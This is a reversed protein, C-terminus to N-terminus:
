TGAHRNAYVSITNTLPKMHKDWLLLQELTGALQLTIQPLLDGAYHGVASLASASYDAGFLRIDKITQGTNNYVIYEDQGRKAAIISNDLAYVAMNRIQLPQVFSFEMGGFGTHATGTYVLKRGSWIQLEGDKGFYLLLNACGGATYAFATQGNVSAMGDAGYHLTFAEAGDSGTLYFATGAQQSLITFAAIMSGSFPYAFKHQISGTEGTPTMTLYAVAPKVAQSIQWSIDAGDATWKAEDGIQAYYAFCDPNYITKLLFPPMDQFQNGHLSVNRSKEVKIAYYPMAFGSEVGDNAQTKGGFAGSITNDALEAGDANALYLPIYGSDEIVNNSIRLNKLNTNDSLGEIYANDSASIFISAYNRIDKTARSYGAKKIVNGTIEVNQPFGGEGFSHEPLIAIASKSMKEFVNDKVTLNSAKVLLGRVHSDHFYSNKITLGTGGAAYSSLVYDPPEVAPCPTDLQVRYLSVYSYANTVDIGTQQSLNALLTKLGEAEDEASLQACDAIVATGVSDWAPNYFHLTEGNRIPTDTNRMAIEFETDSIKKYVNLFVGYSNLCDDLTHGVVCGDLTSGHQVNSLHFGDAISSVLRDTAPRRDVTVNKYTHAGYGYSETIALKPSTYVTVNELTCRSSNSLNISSKANADFRRCVFRDGIQVGDGAFIDGSALRLRLTRDGIVEKVTASDNATVPIQETGDATYYVSRMGGWSGDPIAYGEDIQLDFSRQEPYLATIVGQSFPLPDYDVKLNALKVNTCRNLYIAHMDFDSILIESGNGDLTFDTKNQIYFKGESGSYSNDFRYGGKPITLTGSGSQRIARYLWYGAALQARKEEETYEGTRSIQLNDFVANDATLMLAVAEQASTSLPERVGDVLAIEETFDLIVEYQRMDASLPLTKSYVSNGESDEWKLTLAGSGGVRFATKVRRRYVFGPIITETGHLTLQGNPETDFRTEYRQTEALPGPLFKEQRYVKIYDLYITNAGAMRNALTVMLQLTHTGIDQTEYGYATSPDDITLKVTKEQPNVFIYYTHWGYEQPQTHNNGPYYAGAFRNNITDRVRGNEFSLQAIDGADSILGLQQKQNGAHSLRVEVVYPNQKESLPLDYVAAAAGAARCTLRAKDGQVIGTDDADFGSLVFGHQSLQAGDAASFMEAIEAYEDRADDQAPLSIRIDDVWYESGGHLAFRISSLRVGSVSVRAACIGNIYCAATQARETDAVWMVTNWGPLLRVTQGGAAGGVRFSTGDISELAIKTRDAFMLAALEATEAPVEHLQFRYSVTARTRGIPMGAYRVTQGESQLSAYQNVDADDRGIVASAGDSVNAFLGSRLNERVTCDEFDADIEIQRADTQPLQLQSYPYIKIYDIYAHGQPNQANNASLGFRISHLTHQVDGTFANEKTYAHAACNSYVTYSGRQSDVCIYLTDWGQSFDPRSPIADTNSSGFVNATATNDLWTFGTYDDIYRSALDVAGVSGNDLFLKVQLFSATARKIKTEVVYQGTIKESLGSVKYQYYQMESGDILKAAYKGDGSIPIVEPEAISWVDGQGTVSQGNDFALSVGESAATVPMGPWTGFFMAITLIQAILQIRLM